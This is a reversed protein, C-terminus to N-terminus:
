PRNRYLSSVCIGCIQEGQNALEALALRMRDEPKCTKLCENHDKDEKRCISRDHIHRCGGTEDTEVEFLHFTQRDAGRCLSLTRM